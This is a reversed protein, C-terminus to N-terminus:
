DSSIVLSRLSAFISFIACAVGGPAAFAGM